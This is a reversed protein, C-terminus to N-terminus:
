KPSADSLCAYFPEKGLEHEYLIFLEDNDLSDLHAKRESLPKSCGGCGKSKEGTAAKFHEILQNKIGNRAHQKCVQHDCPQYSTTKIAM